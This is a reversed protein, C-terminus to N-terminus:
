VEGIKSGLWRKVEALRVDLIIRVITKVSEGGRGCVCGNTIMPQTTFM